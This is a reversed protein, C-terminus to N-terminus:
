EKSGTSGSSTSLEKIKEILSNVAKKAISIFDYKDNLEIVKEIAADTFTASATAVEGIKTTLDYEKNIEDIKAVTDTVTSKIKDISESETNISSIASNLSTSIKGTIDYKANIKNLYNYSEIVTKGFGRIAEGADDEKKAVFNSVAAFVVAFVPGGLVFGLVGGTVAAANKINTKELPVIEYKPPEDSLKLQGVKIRSIITRPAFRFSAVSAVLLLFIISSIRSM